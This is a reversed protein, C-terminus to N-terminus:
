KITAIYEIIDQMAKDDKIPGMAARMQQGPIDRNHAGRLGNKFKRLQELQYWGELGALVPANLSKIGEAKDGHCSSCNNNYLRRGKRRNGKTKDNALTDPLTDIYALVDRVARDDLAKARGNMQWGYFDSVGGRIEGRFHRLQRLLYDKDQITLRPARMFANGEANNGHCGACTTFYARGRVPDAPSLANILEGTDTIEELKLIKGNRVHWSHLYAADFEGGTSRVTGIDRGLVNVHEGDVVYQDHRVETINLTAMIRSFFQSVGAHGKYTGAWPIQHEPGHLKFIVEPDLLSLITDMDGQQFYGYLQEVVKKSESNAHSRTPDSGEANGFNSMTTLSLFFIVPMLKQQFTKKM